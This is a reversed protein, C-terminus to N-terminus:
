EAYLKCLFMVFNHAILTKKYVALAFYKTPTKTIYEL